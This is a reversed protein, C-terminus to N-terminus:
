AQLVSGCASATPRLTLCHGGQTQGKGRVGAQIEIGGDLKNSKEAEEPRKDVAEAEVM